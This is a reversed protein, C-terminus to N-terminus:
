FEAVELPIAKSIKEDDISFEVICDWIGKLPFEVVARYIEETEDLVLEYSFDYKTTSPRYFFIKGKSSSVFNNAKDLLQITFVSEEQKIIKDPINSEIYYKRSSGALHEVAARRTFSKGREYYDEAVLGPSTKIAFTLMIMNVIVVTALISIFGWVWPSQYWHDVLGKKKEM